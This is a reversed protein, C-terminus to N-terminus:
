PSTIYYKIQLSTLQWDIIAQVKLHFLSKTWSTDRPSVAKVALAESSQSNIVLKLYRGILFSKIISHNCVQLAQAAFMQAVVQRLVKFYIISYEKDDLKM